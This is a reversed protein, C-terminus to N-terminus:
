ASRRRRTTPSLNEETTAQQLQRELYEKVVHNLSQGTVQAISTLDRHLKSSVRVVFQGSCPKEPKEGRQRCFALYDDVSERFAKEIGSASDAQFTVVDRLGAVEGHLIKADADYEVTGIYGKYRM